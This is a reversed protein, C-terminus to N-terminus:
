WFTSVIAGPTWSASPSPLGFTWPDRERSKWAITPPTDFTSGNVPCHILRILGFEISSISTIVAPALTSNPRAWPPKALM